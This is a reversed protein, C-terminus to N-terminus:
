NKSSSSMIDIEKFDFQVCTCRNKLLTTLNPQVNSNEIFSKIPVGGDVLMSIKLSNPNSKKYKIDYISKKVTREGQNHIELPINKITLLKKLLNDELPQESKVSIIVKSRFPVSDIPQSQIQRLDHLKIGDLVNEKKIRLKRIHPDFIKVFFPRGKGSILSTKDEGGIWNIKVQKSHFKKIVFKAIQGEVSNFNELGHFDCSICGSGQCNKCSMQKQPFNRRGKTYRGYIFLPKSYIKCSDDKFNIKLTLDPNNTDLKSKTQRAFKKGIEYNIQNKVNIVGKIKFKSRIIDDNDSISPKLISGILFTSFQYKSSNEIIQKMVQDMKEFINKCIFCKKVVSKKENSTFRKGLVRSPKLCLEKSILRGICFDCLSYNRLIRNVLYKTAELKKMGINVM